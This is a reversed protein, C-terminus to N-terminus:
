RNQLLRQFQQTAFMKVKKIDIDGKGPRPWDVRLKAETRSLGITPYLQGPPLNVWQRYILHDNKLFNILCRDPGTYDLRCTVRDGTIFTQYILGNLFNNECNIENISMFLSIRVM